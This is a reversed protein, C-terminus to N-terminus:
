KLLINNLEFNRKRCIVTFYMIIHSFDFMRKSYYNNEQCKCLYHNEIITGLMLYMNFSTHSLIISNYQKHGQKESNFM